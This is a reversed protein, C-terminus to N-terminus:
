EKVAKVLPQVERWGHLSHAPFIMRTDDARVMHVRDYRGNPGHGDRTLFMRKLNLGPNSLSAFDEEEASYWVMELEIEEM